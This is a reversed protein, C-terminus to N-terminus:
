ATLLQIKYSECSGRKVLLTSSHVFKSVQYIIIYFLQCESMDFGMVTADVCVNHNALEM